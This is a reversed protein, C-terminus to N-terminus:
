RNAVNNNLCSLAALALAEGKIASKWEGLEPEIHVVHEGDFTHVHWGADHRWLRALLLAATADDNLAPVCNAAGIRLETVGSLSRLRLQVGRRFALMLHGTIRLMASSGAVRVASGVPWEYWSSAAVREETTM